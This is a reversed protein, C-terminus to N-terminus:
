SLTTTAALSASKAILEPVLQMFSSVAESAEGRNYAAATKELVIGLKFRALVVYYDIDDVPRGSVTAYHELLEDRTPMGEYDVYRMYKTDDAEPGWATLAWGLDLLPDGITTMEWDIIAALKAPAGHSYMVNAWQYDGHLIGPEYVKPRNSGLWAAAEDLGPLERFQVDKYFALWRAVQREHFNEPRGFGELGNAKWDVKSLRAIGDVLQVGLGHRAALDKDFPAPWSKMPSWGDVYEMIFFPVGLVSGDENSAIIKSHPVDTGRLGNLLRLERLMGSHRDPTSGDKPRRMVMSVGGRELKLVDNQSGGQLLEAKVPDGEGPLHQEDMWRALKDGGILHDVSTEPAM